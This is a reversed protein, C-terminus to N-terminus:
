KIIDQHSVFKQKAKERQEELMILTDIRNQLTSSPHGRSAQSLNLYPLFINQPLLKCTRRGM